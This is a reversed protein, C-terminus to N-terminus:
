DESNNLLDFIRYDDDGFKSEGLQELGWTAYEQIAKQMAEQNAVDEPLGIHKMISIIDVKKAVSQGFNAYTVGKKYEKKQGRSLGLMLAFMYAENMSDFPAKENTLNEDDTDKDGKGSIKKLIKHAKPSCGAQFQLHLEEVEETM